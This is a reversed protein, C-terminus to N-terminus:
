INEPVVATHGAPFHPDRDMILPTRQFKDKADERCISVVETGLFYVVEGITAVHATFSPDGHEACLMRSDLTAM